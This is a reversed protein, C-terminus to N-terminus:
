DAASELQGRDVKSQSIRILFQHVPFKWEIGLRRTTDRPSVTSSSLLKMNVRTSKDFHLDEEEEEEESASHDSFEQGEELLSQHLLQYDCDSKGSKTPSSRTLGFSPLFTPLFSSKNDSSEGGGGGVPAERDRSFKSITSKHSETTPSKANRM